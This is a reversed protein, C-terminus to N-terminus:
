EVRYVLRWRVGWERAAQCDPLWIDLRRGYIAGGRDEVTGLGYGDVYLQTGFARARPASITGWTPRTGSATLGSDGCGPAFATVLLLGVSALEGFFM